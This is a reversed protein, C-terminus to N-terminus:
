IYISKSTTSRNANVKTKLRRIYKMEEMKDQQQLDQDKGGNDEELSGNVRTACPGGEQQSLHESLLQGPGM